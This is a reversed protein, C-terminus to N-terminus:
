HEERKAAFPLWAEPLQGVKKGHIGGRHCRGGSRQFLMTQDGPLRILAVGAGAVQAQAIRPLGHQGAGNWQPLLFMGSKCGIQCVPVGGGEHVTQRLQASLPGM